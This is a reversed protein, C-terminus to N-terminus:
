NFNHIFNWLSLSLFAYIKMISYIIYYILINIFLIYINRIKM